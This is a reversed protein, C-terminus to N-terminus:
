ERSYRMRQEYCKGRRGKQSRYRTHSNAVFLHALMVFIIEYGRLLYLHLSLFKNFIHCKVKIIKFIFLWALFSIWFSCLHQSLLFLAPFFHQLRVILFLQLDLIAGVANRGQHPNECKYSSFVGSSFGTSFTTSSSSSSTVM